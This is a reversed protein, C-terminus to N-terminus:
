ARAPTKKTIQRKLVAVIEQLPMKSLKLALKAEQQLREEIWKRVLTQYRPEGELEALIKLAEVLEPPLRVTDPTHLKAESMLEDFEEPKMQHYESEIKEQEAKSLKGFQKKM